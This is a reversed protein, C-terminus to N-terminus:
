QSVPTIKIRLYLIGVRNSHRLSDEGKSAQISCTCALSWLTVCHFQPISEFPLSFITSRPQMSSVLFQHFSRGFWFIRWFKTVCAPPTIWGRTVAVYAM